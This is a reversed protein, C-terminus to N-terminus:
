NGTYQYYGACGADGRRNNIYKASTILIQNGNSDQSYKNSFVDRCAKNLGINNLYASYNGNASGNINLLNGNLDFQTGTSSNYGYEIVCDFSGNQKVNAPLSNAQQCFITRVNDMDRDFMGYYQGAEARPMGGFMTAASTAVALTGATIRERLSKNKLANLQSNDVSVPQQQETQQFQEQSM